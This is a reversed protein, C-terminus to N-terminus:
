ISCICEEFSVDGMSVAVINANSNTYYDDTVVIRYKSYSGPNQVDYSRKESGSWLPEDKRQDIVTWVNQQSFGELRFDKPARKTIGGNVYEISYKSISKPTGFDYGIHASNIYTKSIWMSSRSSDFANEAPYGSYTGSSFVSANGGAVVPVADSCSPPTAHAMTSAMLLISFVTNHSKINFM